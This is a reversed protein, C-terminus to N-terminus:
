EVISKFPKQNLQIWGYEKSWWYKLVLCMKWTEGGRDKDRHIEYSLCDVRQLCNLFHYLPFHYHHSHNGHPLFSLDFVTLKGNRGGEQQSETERKTNKFKMEREREWETYLWCKNQAHWDQHRNNSQNNWKVTILCTINVNDHCKSEMLIIGTFTLILDAAHM